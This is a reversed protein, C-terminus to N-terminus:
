RGDGAAMACGSRGGSTVTPATQEGRTGTENGGKDKPFGTTCMDFVNNNNYEHDHLLVSANGGWRMADCRMAMGLNTIGSRRGRPVM